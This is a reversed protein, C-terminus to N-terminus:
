KIYKIYKLKYKIYKMYTDTQSPKRGLLSGTSKQADIALLQSANDISDTLNKIFPSALANVGGTGHDTQVLKKM